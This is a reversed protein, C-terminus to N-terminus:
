LCDLSFEVMYFSVTRYQKKSKEPLGWRCVCNGLYSYLGTTIVVVLYGPTMSDSAGNYESTFLRDSSLFAVPGLDLPSELETRVGALLLVKSLLSTVAELSGVWVSGSEEM